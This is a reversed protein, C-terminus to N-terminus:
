DLHWAAVVARRARALVAGCIMALVIQGALTGLGVLSWFWVDSWTWGSM